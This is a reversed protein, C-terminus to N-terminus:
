KNDKLTYIRCTKDTSSSIAMTKDPNLCVDNIPASHIGLENVLDFSTPRNAGDYNVSFVRMVGEEGGAVFMKNDLSWRVKAVEPDKEHFDAETRCIENVEGTKPEIEFIAAFKSLAAVFYPLDKHAFQFYSMLEKDFDIEHIHPGLPFEKKYIKLSNPLGYDKGGGGGSILIHNKYIGIGFLPCNLNNKPREGKVM